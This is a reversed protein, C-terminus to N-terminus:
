RASFYLRAADTASAEVSFDCSPEARSSVWPELKAHLRHESQDLVVIDDFVAPARAPYQECSTVGYAELVAGAYHTYIAPDDETLTTEQDTDTDRMTVTWTCAGGDHCASTEMTARIRHGPATTVYSSHVTTGDSGVRYSAIAWRGHWFMLVPQLIVSHDRPEVGPFFYLLQNDGRPREPVEFTARLASVWSGSEVDAAAAEIWGGSQPGPAYPPADLASDCADSADCADCADRTISHPGLMSFAFAAVGLRHALAARM